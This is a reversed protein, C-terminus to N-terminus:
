IEQEQDPAQKQNPAQKTSITHRAGTGFLSKTLYM